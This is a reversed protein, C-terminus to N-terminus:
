QRPAQPVLSVASELEVRERKILLVIDGRDAAPRDDHAIVRRSLRESGNIRWSNATVRGAWVEAPPQRRLDVTHPRALDLRRAHLVRNVRTWQLRHHEAVPTRVNGSRER